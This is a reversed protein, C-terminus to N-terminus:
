ALVGFLPLPNVRAAMLENCAIHMRLTGGLNFAMREVDLEEGLRSMYIFAVAHAEGDINHAVLTLHLKYLTALNPNHIVYKHQFHVSCSKYRM